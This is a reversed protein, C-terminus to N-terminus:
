ARVADPNQITGRKIKSFIYELACPVRKTSIKFFYGLYSMRKLLQSLLTKKQQM